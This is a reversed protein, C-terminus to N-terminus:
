HENYIVTLEDRKVNEILGEYLVKTIINKEMDIEINGCWNACPNWPLALDVILKGLTQEKGYHFGCGSYFRKGLIAIRPGINTLLNYNAEKRWENWTKAEALISKSNKCWDKYTM